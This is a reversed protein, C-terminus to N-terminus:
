TSNDIGDKWGCGAVVVFPFDPTVLSSISNLLGESTERGYM